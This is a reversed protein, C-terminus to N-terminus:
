NPGQNQQQQQQRQRMQELEQLIQQPTRIGNRPGGPQNPPMPHNEPQPPYRTPQVQNEQYEERMRSASQPPPEPVGGAPRVTLALERPVGAPTSGLMLVNYGSGNLLDSLVERPTGPGYTGFIRQDAKGATLGQIKMGGSRSIQDLIGSLTSNHAEVTLKGDTLTVKATQAPQSLLSPATVSPTAPTAAKGAPLSASSSAPQQPYAQNRAPGESQSQAMADVRRYPPRFQALQAFGSACVAFSAIVALLHPAPHNKIAM